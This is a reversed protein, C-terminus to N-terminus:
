QTADPRAQYDKFIIIKNFNYDNQKLKFINRLIILTKVGMEGYIHKPIIILKTTMRTLFIKSM